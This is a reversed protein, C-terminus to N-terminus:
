GGSCAAQPEGNRMDEYLWVMRDCFWLKGVMTLVLGFLTPWVELVALGVALPLLGAVAIATLILAAREHHRPVPRDKRALFLREGYTARAAWSDRRTPPPFLRPNVGIFIALAAIPVLCWWGLWLRSWVSIVLLPLVAVRSWVSLPNAHREWADDDMRMSREALAFVDM